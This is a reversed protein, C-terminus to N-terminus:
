AIELQGFSIQPSPCVVVCGASKLKQLRKVIEIFPHQLKTQGEVQCGEEDGSSMTRCGCVRLSLSRESALFYYAAFWSLFDVIPASQLYQLSKEM